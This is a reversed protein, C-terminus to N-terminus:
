LTGKIFVNDTFTKGESKIVFLYNGELCNTFDYVRSLSNSNKLTESFAMDKGEYLIEIKTSRKDMTMKSVYVYDDKLTIQPKAIKYEDEKFVKAINSRVEFPTVVIEALKELEIYYM